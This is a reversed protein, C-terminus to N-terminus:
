RHNRSEPVAARYLDEHLKLIHRIDFTAMKARGRKGMVAAEDPHDLLSQMAQGLAAVDGVPVLLGCDDEVLDRIGRINAGIAPVELCLSEMISRPLGERESPLLTARSARILTPIDSRVGLFHLRHRISGLPARVNRDADAESGCSSASEPGLEQSARQQPCSHGREEFSSVTNALNEMEARLPGDGAFALHAHPPLTQFALIADRHRKGPNFEAVMLFLVDAAGLNLESRVRAVEEPKVRDPAYLERDVGIGPMYIIRDPPVLRLRRAAQEDDRNIVVLFDTWRGALRELGSFLTNKLWGGGPHFHFGHATYIVKPHGAQRLRRLALRTVFSAVPTHAHVLDYDERRVLQRLSRAARLLNAPHGPNRSLPLDYVHDFAARCTPCHSAGAAAADVRWGLQRFHSAFPLLFARLTVPVTTTILLRPM